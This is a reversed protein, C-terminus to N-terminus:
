PFLLGLLEAREESKMWDLRALGLHLLKVEM